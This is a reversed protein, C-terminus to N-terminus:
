FAITNPLNEKHVVVPFQAFAVDEFGVDVPQTQPHDKYWDNLALLKKDKDRLRSYASVGMDPKNARYISVANMLLALSLCLMLIRSPKTQCVLTTLFILLLPAYFHRGERPGGVWWIIWYMVVLFPLWIFERKRVAQAINWIFPGVCLLYPLGLPYDFVSNVGHDPVALLWFHKIFDLLSNGGHLHISHFMAESSGTLSRFSVSAKNIPHFMVTGMGLPFLPTGACYDSKALFPGAILIGLIIIGGISGRLFQGYAKRQSAAISYNFDWKHEAFGIRSLGMWLLYILLSLLPMELPALPKSCFLYTIEIIFFIKQGNLFSDLAALALYCVILDMMATGMQVGFGHSGMFAALVLGIGTVPNKSFFRSLNASVLIIGVLFLFQPFKNPLVSAFWFPSLSYDVPLLFLDDASWPIHAFSGLILHQRPMTYHYILSDAEQILHPPLLSAYFACSLIFVTFVCTLLLFFKTFQDLEHFGAKLQSIFSKLDNLSSILLILCACLSLGWALLSTVGLRAQSGYMELWFVPYGIILLLSPAHALILSKQRPMKM